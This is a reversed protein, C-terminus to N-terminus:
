HGLRCFSGLHRHEHPVKLADPKILRMETDAERSAPAGRRSELIREVEAHDQTITAIPGIWHSRPDGTEAAGPLPVIVTRLISPPDYGLRSMPRKQTPYQASDLTTNAM